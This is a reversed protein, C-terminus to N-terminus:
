VGDGEADGDGESTHRKGVGLGVKDAACDHELAVVIMPWATSVIPCRTLTSVM